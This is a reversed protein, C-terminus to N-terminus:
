HLRKALAFAMSETDNPWFRAAHRDDIWLGVEHGNFAVSARGETGEIEAHIGRGAAEAKELAETVAAEHKAALAARAEHSYRVSVYRNCGSLIEHTISCRDIREHATAIEKVAEEPVDPDKIEVDISSGMSFYDSRVSVKRNSWGRAKLAARIEAARDTTSLSM